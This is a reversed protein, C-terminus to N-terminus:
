AVRSTCMALQGAARVMLFAGALCSKAALAIEGKTWAKLFHTLVASSVMDSM